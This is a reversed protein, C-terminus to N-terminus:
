LSNSKSRHIDFYEQPQDFDIAKVKGNTELEIIKVLMKGPKIDGWVIRSLYSRSVDVKQAFEKVTIRNEKLYERLTM